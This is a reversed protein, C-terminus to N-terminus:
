WCRKYGSPPCYYYNESNMVDELWRMGWSLRAVAFKPIDEANVRFVLDTRKDNVKYEIVDKVRTGNFTESIFKAFDEQSADGLLTSPWVVVQAYKNETDTTNM